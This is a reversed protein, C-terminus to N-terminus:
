KKAGKKAAKAQPAQTVKKSPATSAKQQKSKEQKRTQM